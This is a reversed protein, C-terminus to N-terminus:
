RKRLIYTYVTEEGAPQYTLEMDAGKMTVIRLDSVEGYPLHTEKYPKYIISDRVPAM